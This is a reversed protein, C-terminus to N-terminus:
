LKEAAPTSPRSEVSIDGDARLRVPSGGGGLKGSVRRPRGSEGGSTRDISLGKVEARVEGRRSEADLDIRSGEPIELRVDGQTSSATIADTIPERPALHVGGREVTVELPGRFDEIEVEDGSARVRAGKALARAEVGGHQVSLEVPGSIRLLHVGEYSTEATLAGKVDEVTVSGHEAKARVDGGVRALRISNFSTEAEAQGTVDSAQIGAHQARIRLDGDVAEASLDGHQLRVELTGTQKAALNGHEVEIRSAGKVSTVQVDGHRGSLKLEGGVESVRTAGHGVDISAAGAVKEVSVDDFSSTVDARAVGSLEVRGHENRITVTAEPPAHLELHTEFGVDDHHELDSRNTTVRVERGEGELRLRIREAFARAKEETPQFVVKRLTVKVVGPAGAVLRVGGFANRVEIEAAQGAALTREASQEFTFSPGYFRGRIVRCGEPGIFVHGRLSWATEVAAGCALLLILFGIKRASV